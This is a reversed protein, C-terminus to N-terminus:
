PLLKEKGKVLTLPYTSGNLTVVVNGDHIEKCRVTVSRDQLKILEQEGVALPVGNIVAQRKGIEMIGSFKLGQPLVRSGYFVQPPATPSSIPALNADEDFTEGKGGKVWNLVYDTGGEREVAVLTKIKGNTYPNELIRKQMEPLNKKQMLKYATLECIAEVTDGDIVHSDPCNENIWLHTYEHAAVSIMEERTRGSLMVVEHTCAGDATKRTHAFGFKHLGGPQGKESWYDVDFLNVTVDTYKLAFQPGYLDVVADRTQEFLEQAQDLTLIANTKDFRCILRGDGTKVHGDGDKIPLGCISCHDKLKECDDCVIGWKHKWVQGTLPGKGCVICHYNAVAPNFYNTEGASFAWVASFFFLIFGLRRM